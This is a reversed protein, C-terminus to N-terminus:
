VRNNNRENQKMTAKSNADTFERACSVTVGPTEVAVSTELRTPCPIVTDLTLRLQGLLAYPVNALPLVVLM